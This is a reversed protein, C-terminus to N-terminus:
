DFKDHTQRSLPLYSLTIFYRFEVSIIFIIFKLANSIRLIIFVIIVFKILELFAYSQIEDNM